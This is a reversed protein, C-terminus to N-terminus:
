GWFYFVVAVLIVVAIMVIILELITFGDQKKLGQKVSVDM